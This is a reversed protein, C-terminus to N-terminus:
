YDLCIPTRHELSARAFGEMLLWGTYVGALEPPEDGHDPLNFAPVAWRAQIGLSVNIEMLEELLRVSSGVRTTRLDEFLQDAQTPDEFAQPPDFAVPVWMVASGCLHPFRQSELKLERRRENVADLLSVKEGNDKVYADVKRFADPFELRYAYSTLAALTGHFIQHGVVMDGDENWEMKLGTGRHLMLQLWRVYALGERRHRSRLWQIFKRRLAWLGSRLQFRGWLSGSPTLRESGDPGVRATPINEMKLHRIMSEVASEYNGVIYASIPIVYGSMGM